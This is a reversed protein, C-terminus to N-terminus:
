VPAFAGPQVDLPTEESASPLDFLATFHFRSGAGPASEVWMRGHMREVLQRCISLGLGTGGYRRSSSGDAQVFPDFISQQQDAAIGIGTDAVCFHLEAL